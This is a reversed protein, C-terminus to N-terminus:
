SHATTASVQKKSERLSRKHELVLDLSNVAQELAILVHWGGQGIGGQDPQGFDAVSGRQEGGVAIEMEVPAAATLGNGQDGGSRVKEGAAALPPPKKIGIRVPM